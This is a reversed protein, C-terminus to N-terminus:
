SNPMPNHVSSNYERMRYPYIASHQTRQLFQNGECRQMLWIVKCGHVQRELACRLQRLYGAEVRFKM